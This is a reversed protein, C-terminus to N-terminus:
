HVDEDEDALSTKHLTCNCYNTVRGFTDINVSPTFQVLQSSRGVVLLTCILVMGGAISAIIISLQSALTM